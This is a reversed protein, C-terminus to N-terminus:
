SQSHIKEIIRLAQVSEAPDVPLPGRGELADALIRYFEPYAGLKPRVQEESGDIGLRGWTSEAEVGYQPDTPRVGADLAPEQGDLGYKTYGAKTGLIHFRAGAQAAAGNM